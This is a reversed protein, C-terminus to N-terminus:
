RPLVPGTGLLDILRGGVAYMIGYALLFLFQLESYQQDTLPITKQIETIVM